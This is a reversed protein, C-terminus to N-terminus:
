APERISQKVRQAEQQLATFDPLNNDWEILTPQEGIQKVTQQFLKLVPEAIPAGHTDLLHTGEDSFGALHYQAVRQKPIGSLYDQPSFQHNQSSVYINNVDLLIQCDAQEAIASIFEWESLTSHTYTLYSSVNELAIRRKLRDQVQIVRNAVHLVAEETYPLPLLEHLFQQQTSVWCLHDSVLAPQYREVLTALRALYAESLPDCSGISLGVGHLTIPYHQRIQELRYLNAGGDIMFNDTLAEFWAIKPLNKLIYPFHPARLGVGIGSIPRPTFHTLSV